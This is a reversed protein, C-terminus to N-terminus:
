WSGMEELAALVIMIMMKMGVVLVVAAVVEVEM